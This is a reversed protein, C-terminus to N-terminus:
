EDPTDAQDAPEPQEPAALIARAHALAALMAPPIPAAQNYDGIYVDLGDMVNFRPDTFLVRLAARRVTADVGRAVFPAFDDAPDARLADELSPLPATRHALDSANETPEPTASNLRAPPQAAPRLIEDADPKATRARADAKRRSWRALFAEEAM